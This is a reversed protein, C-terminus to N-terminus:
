TTKKYFEEIVNDQGGELNTGIYVAATRAPSPNGEAEALGFTAAGVVDGLRSEYRRCRPRRIYTVKDASSMLCLM